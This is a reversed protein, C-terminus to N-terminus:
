RGASGPVRLARRCADVFIERSLDVQRPNWVITAISQVPPDVVPRYVVDPTVITALRSPVLSVGLGAGVFGIQDLDETRVAIRQHLKLRLFHRKHHARQDVAREGGDEM